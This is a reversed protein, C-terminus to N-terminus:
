QIMFDKHNLYFCAILYQTLQLWQHDFPELFRILYGTTTQRKKIKQGSFAQQKSGTRGLVPGTGRCVIIFGSGNKYQHLKNSQKSLDTLQLFLFLTM